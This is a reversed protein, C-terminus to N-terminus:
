TFQFVIFYINGDELRIFRQDHTQLLDTKNSSLNVQQLLDSLTTINDGHRSDGLSTALVEDVHSVQHGDTGGAEPTDMAVSQDPQHVGYTDMAVTRREMSKHGPLNIDDETSQETTPVDIESGILDDVVEYDRDEITSSHHVTNEDNIRPTLLMQSTQKVLEESDLKGKIGTFNVAAERESMDYVHDARNTGEHTMDQSEIDHDDEGDDSPDTSDDDSVSSTKRWSAAYSKNQTFHANKISRRKEIQKKFAGNEFKQQVFFHIHQHM